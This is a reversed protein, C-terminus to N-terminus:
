MFIDNSNKSNFSNNIFEKPNITNKGCGVVCCRQSQSGNPSWRTGGESHRRANIVEPSNLLFHQTSCCGTREVGVNRVQVFVAEEPGDFQRQFTVPRSNCTLVTVPVSPGPAARTHATARRPVTDGLRGAAEGRARSSRSSDETAAGVGVSCRWGRGRGKGRGKEWGQLGGGEGGEEVLIERLGLM